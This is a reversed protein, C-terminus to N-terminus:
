HHARRFHAYLPNGPLFRCSECSTPPNGIGITTTYIVGDDNLPLEPMSSSTSAGFQNAFNAVRAQDKQVANLTGNLNFYRTIPLSVGNLYDRTVVPKAAVYTALFFFPAFSTVSLM